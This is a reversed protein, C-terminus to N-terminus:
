DDTSKASHLLSYIRSMEWMICAARPVCHLLEHGISAPRSHHRRASDPAVKGVARVIGMGGYISPPSLLGFM